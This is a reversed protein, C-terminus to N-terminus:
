WGSASPDPETKKSHVDDDSRYRMLTGLAVRVSLFFTRSRSSSPQSGSHGLCSPWSRVRILCSRAQGLHPTRYALAFYHGALTLTTIAV